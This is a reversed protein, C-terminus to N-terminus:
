PQTSKSGNEIQIQIKKEDGRGECLLDRAVVVIAPHSRHKLAQTTSLHPLNPCTDLALESFATLSQNVVDHVQIV